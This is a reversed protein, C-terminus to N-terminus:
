SLTNLSVYESQLPMNVNVTRYCKDLKAHPTIVHNIREISSKDIEWYEPNRVLDQKYKHDKATNATIEDDWQISTTVSDKENLANDKAEVSLFPMAFYQHRNPHADKSYDDAEKAAHYISYLRASEYSKFAILNEPAQEFLAIARERSIYTDNGTFLGCWKGPTIVQIPGLVVYLRM